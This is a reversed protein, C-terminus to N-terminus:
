SDVSVPPALQDIPGFGVRVGSMCLDVPNSLSRPSGDIFTVATATETEIKLQATEELGQLNVLLDANEKLGERCLM